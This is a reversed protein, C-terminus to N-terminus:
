SPMPQLSTHPLMSNSDGSHFRPKLDWNRPWTRSLSASVAMEKRGDLTSYRADEVSRNSLEKLLLAHNKVPELRGVYILTFGDKPPCHEKAIRVIPAVGNYILACNEERLFM